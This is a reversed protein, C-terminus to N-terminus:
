NIAQKRHKTQNKYVRRSATRTTAYAATLAGTPHCCKESHFWVYVALLETSM